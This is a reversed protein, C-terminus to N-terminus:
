NAGAEPDRDPEPRILWLCAAAGILALIMFLIMVGSFASADTTHLTHEIRVVDDPRFKALTEKIV